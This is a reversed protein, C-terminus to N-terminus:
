DHLGGINEIVFKIAEELKESKGAGSVFYEKGGWKGEIIKFAKEAIKKLDVSM